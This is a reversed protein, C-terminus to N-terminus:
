LTRVPKEWYELYWQEFGEMDINWLRKLVREVGPVDNRRLSGVAHIYEQALEKTHESHLVFEMMTGAQQYALGALDQGRGDSGGSAHLLSSRTMFEKFPAFRGDEVANDGFNIHERRTASDYVAEMHVASSEQFWSGGGGLFLRNAFLQHTAEHIHVTDGPAGYHTAYYDKWAHGGSREAQERAQGVYEMCFQIYSERERFLFIPLLRRGEVEDFPYVERIAEYHEDMIKAFKKTGSSDGIVIFHKSRYVRIRADMLERPFDRKWREEVEEETWEPVRLEGDYAFGEEFFGLLAARDADGLREDTSVQFAWGHQPAIGGIVYTEGSVATREYTEMHLLAAYPAAGYPGELLRRDAFRFDVMPNREINSRAVSTVDEPEVIGWEEGDMHWALLLM